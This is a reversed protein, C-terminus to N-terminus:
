KELRINPVLDYKEIDFNPDTITSALSSKTGGELDVDKFYDIETTPTNVTSVTRGQPAKDKNPLNTAPDLGPIGKFYDINSM